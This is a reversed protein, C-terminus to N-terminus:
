GAVPFVSMDRFMVSGSVEARGAVHLNPFRGALVRLTTAIVERALPEGACRHREFSLSLHRPQKASVFRLPDFRTPEKFVKPDNNAAHLWILLNRGHTAVTSTPVRLAFRLPCAIRLVEDVVSALTTQHEMLPRIRSWLDVPQALLAHIGLTIAAATTGNGAVGLLVLFALLEEESRFVDPRSAARGIIDNGPRRRREEIIPRLLTALKDKLASADLVDTWPATRDAALKSVKGTFDLYTMQTELDEIQLMSSGFVADRAVAKAIRVLDFPLHRGTASLQREISATIDERYASIRERSIAEHSFKKVRSHQDNRVEHHDETVLPLLRMFSWFDAPYGGTAEPFRSAMGEMWEASLDHDALANMAARYDSIVHFQGYIGSRAAGAVSGKLIPCIAARDLISSISPM